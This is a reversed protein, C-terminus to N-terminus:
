STARPTAPPSILRLLLDAIVALGIIPIAGLL